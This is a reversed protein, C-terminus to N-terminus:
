PLMEAGLRRKNAPSVGAFLSSIKPWLRDIHRTMRPDAM